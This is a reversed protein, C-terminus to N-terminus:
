QPLDRRRRAFRGIQRALQERKGPPLDHLGPQDVKIRHNLVDGAHQGSEQALVDRDLKIEGIAHRPDM